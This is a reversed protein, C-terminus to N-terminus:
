PLIPDPAAVVPNTVRGVREVECEVTDGPQLYIPPKRAFGVGEPTGTIILDGPKLVMVESIYAILKRCDFIM